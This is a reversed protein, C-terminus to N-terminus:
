YTKKCRETERQSAVTPPFTKSATTLSVPCPDPKKEPQTVPAKVPNTRPESRKRASSRDQASPTVTAMSRFNSFERPKEKDAQHPSNM